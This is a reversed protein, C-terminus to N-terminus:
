GEGVVHCSQGTTCRVDVPGRRDSAINDYYAGNLSFTVAEAVGIRLDISRDATFQTVAGPRMIGELKNQGDVLVRVWVKDTFELKMTLSDPAATSQPIDLIRSDPATEEESAGPVADAPATAQAGQAANTAVEDAGRVNLVVVTAGVVIVFLLLVGIATALVRRSRHPSQDSDAAGPPVAAPAAPSAASASPDPGATAIGTPYEHLVSAVDLGLHEAYTRIIGRVYVPDIGLAHLEDRELAALHTERVGTQRAADSLTEGRGRRAERLIDGITSAM